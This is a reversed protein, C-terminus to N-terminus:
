RGRFGFAQFISVARNHADRVAQEVPTGALITGMMDTVVNQNGVAASAETVPGRYANGVFPPETFAVRRFTSSIRNDRILPHQWQQEYAPVVYGPSTRWLTQQVEDSLLHMAMQSAADFNRSGNMFYLFHGSSAQLRHGAPGLPKEVLVTQEAVPNRDFVAKAYMTGANFTFGVTGALYAENNSPDTWANVGAPLADRNEPNQYVDALWRIAAMTEPSNLTVVQGSQDALAGGWSHIIAWVLYEGDGSRNVTMGWGSFNEAPRSIRRSTQLAADWTAFAQETNLGAERVRDERVWYGEVRSYFPLGIWQRNILHTARAGSFTQGWRRVADNVLPTADRTIDFLALQHAALGHLILDVPQGAARQAQLKQYIDTGGLFGTLDSLDLNWNQSAAYDQISRRLFANHDPHFDLVQVVQLRGTVSAAGGAPPTGTQAAQPPPQERTPGCAAALIGAGLAGAGGLLM